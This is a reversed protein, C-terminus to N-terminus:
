NALSAFIQDLDKSLPKDVNEWKTIGELLRQKSMQRYCFNLIEREVLKFKKLEYKSRGVGFIELLGEFANVLLLALNLCM